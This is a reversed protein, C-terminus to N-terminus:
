HRYTEETLSPFSGKAKELSLKDGQAAVRTEVADRASKLVDEPVIARYAAFQGAADQTLVDLVVMRQGQYFTPVGHAYSNIVEM